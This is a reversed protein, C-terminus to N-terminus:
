VTVSSNSGCTGCLFSRWNARWACAECIMWMIPSRAPAELEAWVDSGRFRFEIGSGTWDLAPSDQEPDMRGILRIGSTAATIKLNKYDM